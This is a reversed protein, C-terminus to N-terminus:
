CHLVGCPCKDGGALLRDLFHLYHLLRGTLKGMDGKEGAMERVRVTIAAALTIFVKGRREM